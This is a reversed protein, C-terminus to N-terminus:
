AFMNQKKEKKKNQPLLSLCNKEGVVSDASSKREIKEAEGGSM